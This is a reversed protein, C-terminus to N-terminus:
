SNSIWVEFLEANLHDNNLDRSYKVFKLKMNQWLASFMFSAYFITWVEDALIAIM